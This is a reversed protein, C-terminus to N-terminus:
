NCQPHKIYVVLRIMKNMTMCVNQPKVRRKMNWGRKRIALGDITIRAKTCLLKMM